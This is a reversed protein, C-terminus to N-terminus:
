NCSTEDTIIHNLTKEWEDNVIEKLFRKMYNIEALNGLKDSLKKDNWLECIKQELDDINNPHFLVGGLQNSEKETMLDPFAGHNPAICCRKHSAAELLAVPFGEYCRSPIVIFRANTYFRALQESTLQGCLKANSPIEIEQNDRLTGAFRFEIEPHRQAVEFM